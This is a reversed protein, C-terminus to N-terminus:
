ELEQVDEKVNEQVFRVIEELLFDADGNVVHGGDVKVSEVGCEQWLEQLTALAEVFALYGKKREIEFHFNHTHM